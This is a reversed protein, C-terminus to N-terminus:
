RSEVIEPWRKLVKKMVPHRRTIRDRAVIREFADALQRCWWDGAHRGAKIARAYAAAIPELCSVDGLRALATLFEVPLPESASELSERLDYLALRSGRRALAAHAAARAVKWAAQGPAPEAAERERLREIVDRLAAPPMADGATSIAAHLGAADQFDGSGSALRLRALDSSDPQPASTRVASRVAERPDSGLATLLPRITSADLIRLAEIVTLRVTDPRQRDLAVRTLAELADASRPGRLFGRLVGVAASAIAPHPDSVASAAAGLSRPDEIAALARLAGVRADTANRGDSVLAALHGVARPGILTLRAIASERESTRSSSLDELLSGIQRRSSAKIVV